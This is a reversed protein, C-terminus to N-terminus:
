LRKRTYRAFRLYASAMESRERASSSLGLYLCTLATSGQAGKGVSAPSNISPCTLTPSDLYETDGM